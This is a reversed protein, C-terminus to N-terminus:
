IVLRRRRRDESVSSKAGSASLDRTRCQLDDWEKESSPVAMRLMGSRGQEAAIESACREAADMASQPAIDNLGMAEEADDAAQVPTTRKTKKM